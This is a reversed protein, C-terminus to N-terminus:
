MDNQRQCLRKTCGRKRRCLWHKRVTLIPVLMRPTSSWPIWILNDQDTNGLTGLGYYASICRDDATYPPILGNIFQWCDTWGYLDFPAAVGIINVIIKFAPLPTLSHQVFPHLRVSRGNALLLSKQYKPYSQLISDKWREGCKMLTRLSYKRISLIATIVEHDLNLSSSRTSAPFPTLPPWSHQM